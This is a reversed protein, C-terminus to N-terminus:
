QFWNSYAFLNLKNLNQLICSSRNYHLDADLQFRVVVTRFSDYFEKRDKYIYIWRFLTFKQSSYSKNRFNKHSMKQIFIFIMVITTEM